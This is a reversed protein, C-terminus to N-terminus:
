IFTESWNASCFSISHTSGTPAAALDGVTTVPATLTVASLPLVNARADSLPAFSLQVEDIWNPISLLPCLAAAFSVSHSTINILSDLVRKTIANNPPTALLTALSSLHGCEVFFDAFDNARM